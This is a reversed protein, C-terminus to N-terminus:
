MYPLSVPYLDKLMQQYVQIDTLSEIQFLQDEVGISIKNELFEWEIGLDDLMPQVIGSNVFARPGTDFFFGDKEFTHVLGGVRDNKEILLVDFNQRALYTAATLGAM